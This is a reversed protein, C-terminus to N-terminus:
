LIFAPCDSVRLDDRQQLARGVGPEVRDLRFVKVVEIALLPIRQILSRSSFSSPHPIFSSYSFLRVYRLVFTPYLYRFAFVQHPLEATARVFPSPIWVKM